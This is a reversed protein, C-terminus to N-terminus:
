LRDYVNRVEAASIMEDVLEAYKVNLYARTVLEKNDEFESYGLDKKEITQVIGIYSDFDTLESIEGSELGAFVDVVKLMVPDDKSITGKQIVQNVAFLPLNYRESIEDTSVQVGTNLKEVIENFMHLLEKSRPATHDMETYFFRAEGEYGKHFYSPDMSKFYDLLEKDQFNFYKERLVEKLRTELHDHEYSYYEYLGFETPGYIVEGSGRAEIREQNFKTHNMKMKEFSQGDAIGYREALEQIVKVRVIDKLTEQKLVEKPVENNFSAGWFNDNNIHAKYKRHFYSSVLSRNQNLFFDYEEESIPKDNITMVPNSRAYMQFMFSIILVAAIILIVTIIKMYHFRKSKRSM